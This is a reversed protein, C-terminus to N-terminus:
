SAETPRIQLFIGSFILSHPHHNPLPNPNLNRRAKKLLSSELNFHPLPTERLALLESGYICFM